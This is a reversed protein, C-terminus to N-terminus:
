YDCGNIFDCTSGMSVNTGVITGVSVGVVRGVKKGVIEGVGGSSKSGVNIGVNLGTLEDKVIEDCSNNSLGVILGTLEHMNRNKRKSM